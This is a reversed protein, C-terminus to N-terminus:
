WVTTVVHKRLRQWHPLHLSMKTQVHVAFPKYEENTAGYVCSDDSVVSSGCTYRENTNVKTIETKFKLMHNVCYSDINIDVDPYQNHYTGDASIDEM